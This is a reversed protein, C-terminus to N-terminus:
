SCALDRWWKEILTHCFQGGGGGGRWGRSKSFVTLLVNEVIYSLTQRSDLILLLKKFFLFIPLFRKLALIFRPSTKFYSMMMPFM